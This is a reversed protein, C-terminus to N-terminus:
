AAWVRSSRVPRTMPAPIMTCVEVHPNGPLGTVQFVALDRGPPFRVQYGHATLRAALARAMEGTVAPIAM